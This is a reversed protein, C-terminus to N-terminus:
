LGKEDSPESVRWPGRGRLTRAGASTGIAVGRAHYQRVHGLDCVLLHEDSVGPGHLPGLMELSRQLRDSRHLQGIQGLVRRGFLLEGLGLAKERAPDIPDLLSKIQRGFQSDLDLCQALGSIVERV